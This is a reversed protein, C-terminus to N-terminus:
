NLLVPDWSLKHKRFQTLFYIKTCYKFKTLRKKRQFHVHFHTTVLFKSEAYKWSAIINCDLLEPILCVVLLHKDVFKSPLMTAVIVFVAFLCFQSTIGSLSFAATIMVLTFWLWFDKTRSLWMSIVTMRVLRAVCFTANSHFYAVNKEPTRVECGTAHFSFRLKYVRELRSM